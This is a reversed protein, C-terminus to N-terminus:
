KQAYHDIVSKSIAAIVAARDQSSATSDAVFVAVPIRTGDPAILIGVDNTAVTVGNHSSSTGTKNALQWGDRLGARLRDAGTRTQKMIDILAENHKGDLLDDNALRDLFNVMAVPTTTDRIDTKYADYAAQKKDASVAHRAADFALPDNYREDWTLGLIDSQLNKEDRDVRIGNIGKKSLFRQVAQPGGILAMLKDCAANDSDNIARTILDSITTTYIGNHQTILEALPHRYVSMDQQTLTVSHNPALSADNNANLVAAGLVAKVVSQLSFRQDGNICALDEDPIAVCVGIRSDPQAAVIAALQATLPQKMDNTDAALATGLLTCAACIVAIALLSLKPSPSTM